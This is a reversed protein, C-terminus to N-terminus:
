DIPTMDVAQAKKAALQKSLEVAPMVIKEQLRATLGDASKYTMVGLM